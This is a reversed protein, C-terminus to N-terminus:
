KVVVRASGLNQIRTFSTKSDGERQSAVLLTPFFTGPNKYVPTANIKVTTESTIYSSFNSVEAFGKEGEFNWSASVIKGANEPVEIIAELKVASGAKVEARDKGNAKVVVVPQIGRRSRANESLIVQGNEIQYNTSLPPEIGKEVWASLDRLGQQLVGLYVIDKTPDPQSPYDGHNAHETFWIRLSKDVDDGLYKKASNRYWDAHWPFAGGDHM